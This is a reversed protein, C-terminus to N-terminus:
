GSAGGNHCGSPIIKTKPERKSGERPTIVDGEKTEAKVAYEM